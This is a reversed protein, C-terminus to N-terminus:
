GNSFELYMGYNIDFGGSVIGSIVAKGHEECIFPGGSDGPCASKPQNSTCIGGPILENYFSEFKEYTLSDNQKLLEQFCESKNFINLPATMLDKPIEPYSGKIQKTSGWGSAYCTSGFTIENKPMCAPKVGKNFEIEKEVHIIAIDNKVSKIILKAYPDDVLINNPQYVYIENAKHFQLCWFYNKIQDGM